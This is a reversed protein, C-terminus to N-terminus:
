HPTSSRTFDSSTTKHKKITKSDIQEGREARLSILGHGAKLAVLQACGGLLRRDRRGRPHFQLLRIWLIASFQRKREVYPQSQSGECGEICRAVHSCNWLFSLGRERSSVISSKERNVERVEYGGACLSWFHGSLPAIWGRCLSRNWTRTARFPAAGDHCYRM